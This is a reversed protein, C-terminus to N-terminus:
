VASSLRFIFFMENCKNFIMENFAVHHLICTDNGTIFFFWLEGCLISKEHNIYITKILDFFLFIIKYRM